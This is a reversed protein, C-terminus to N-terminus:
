FIGNSFCFECMETDTIDNVIAEKITFDKLLRVTIVETQLEMIPGSSEEDKRQGRM